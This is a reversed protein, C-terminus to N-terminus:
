AVGSRVGYLPLPQPPKFREAEALDLPAKFGRSELLYALLATVHLEGPCLRPMSFDRDHGTVVLDQDTCESTNEVLCM